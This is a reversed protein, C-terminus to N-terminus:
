GQRPTSNKTTIDKFGHFVNRVLQQTEAQLQTFTATNM